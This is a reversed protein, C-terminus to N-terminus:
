YRLGLVGCYYYYYHNNARYGIGLMTVETQGSGESKQLMASGVLLM